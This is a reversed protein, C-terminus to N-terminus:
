WIGQWVRGASFDSFTSFAAVAMGIVIAIFLGRLLWILM